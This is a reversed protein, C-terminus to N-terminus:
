VDSMKATFLLKIGWINSVGGGGRWTAYFSKQLKQVTAEISLCLCVGYMEALLSKALGM